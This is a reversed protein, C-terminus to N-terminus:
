LNERARESLVNARGVRTRRQLPESSTKSRAPEFPTDPKISTKFPTAAQNSESSIDENQGTNTQEDLSQPTPYDRPEPEDACDSDDELEGSEIRDGV